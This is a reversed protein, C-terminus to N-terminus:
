TDSASRCTGEVLSFRKEARERAKAAKAKKTLVVPSRFVRQNTNSVVSTVLSASGASGLLAHCRRRQM